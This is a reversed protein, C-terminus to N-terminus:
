QIAVHAMYPFNYVGFLDHLGYVYWVLMRLADSHRVSSFLSVWCYSIAWDAVMRAPLSSRKYPYGTHTYQTTCQRRKDCRHVASTSWMVHDISFSTASQYFLLNGEPLINKYCDNLIKHCMCKISFYIFIIKHIASQNKDLLDVYEVASPFTDRLQILVPALSNVSPQLSSHKVGDGLIDLFQSFSLLM